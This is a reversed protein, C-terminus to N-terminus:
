TIDDLTCGTTCCSLMLNVFLVDMHLYVFMDMWGVIGSRWKVELGSCRFELFQLPNTVYMNWPRDVWISSLWYVVRFIFNWDCKCHLVRARTYEVTTMKLCYALSKRSRILFVDSNWRDSYICKTKYTGRRHILFEMKYPFSLRIRM